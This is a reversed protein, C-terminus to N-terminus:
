RRQPALVWGCPIIVYRYCIVSIKILVSLSAILFIYKFINIVIYRGSYEPMLTNIDTPSQGSISHRSWKYESHPHNKLSMQAILLPIEKLVDCISLLFNIVKAARNVSIYVCINAYQVEWSNHM